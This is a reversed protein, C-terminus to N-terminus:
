LSLYCFDIGTNPGGSISGKGSNCLNWACDLCIWGVFHEMFDDNMYTASAGTAEKSKPHPEYEAVMIDKHCECCGKKTLTDSQDIFPFHIEM